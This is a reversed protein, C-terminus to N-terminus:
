LITLWALPLAPREKSMKQALMYITEARQRQLLKVTFSGHKGRGFKLASGITSTDTVRITQNSIVRRDVNSGSIVVNEGTL